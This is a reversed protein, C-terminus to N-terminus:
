DIMLTNNFASKIQDIMGTGSATINVTNMNHFDSFYNDLTDEVAAKSM